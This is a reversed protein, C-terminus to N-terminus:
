RSGDRSVFEFLVDREFVSPDEPMPFPSAKYIANEAARQLQESDCKRTTVSAVEGGPILRVAVECRFSDGANLPPSFNRYAKAQMLGIWEDQKGARIAALRREEAAMDAALEAERQARAEAEAKRRAEEEAKRQAELEAQRKREAEAKRQEELERQRKKEAEAKRQEDLEAQREKEAAAKRQAELESQRQREAEREAELREQERREAEVKRQAEAEKERRAADIASQDIVTAKITEVDAQQAVPTTFDITLIFAAAIVAHVLVSKSWGALKDFRGPM